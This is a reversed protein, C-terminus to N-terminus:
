GAGREESRASRLVGLNQVTEDQFDTGRHWLATGGLAFYMDDISDHYREWFKLRRVNNSGDAALLSFFQQILVLKLWGAVMTRADDGVLSWKTRNLSLWPNGWQAM